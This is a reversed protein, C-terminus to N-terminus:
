YHLLLGSTVWGWHWHLWLRSHLHLLRPHLHSGTRIGLSGLHLRSRRSMILMLLLRHTSLWHHSLRNVLRLLRVIIIDVHINSNGVHGLECPSCFGCDTYAGITFLISSWSSLLFNWSHLPPKTHNKTHKQWWVAANWKANIWTCLDVMFAWIAIILKSCTINSCSQFPFLLNM